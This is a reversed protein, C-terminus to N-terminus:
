PSDARQFEQISARFEPLREELRRAIWLEAVLTSTDGLGELPRKSARICNIGEGPRRNGEWLLDVIFTVWLERGRNEASSCLKWQEDVWWDGDTDAEVLEWRLATLISLVHDRPNM